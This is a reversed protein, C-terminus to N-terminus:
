TSSKALVAVMMPTVVLLWVGRGGAVWLATMVLCGVAQGVLPGFAAVPLWGQTPAIARLVLIGPLIFIVQSLLGFVLPLPSAVALFAALYAIVAAGAALMLAPRAIM